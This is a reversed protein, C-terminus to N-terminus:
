ANSGKLLLPPFWLLQEKVISERKSIICYVKVKSHVKTAVVMTDIWEKPTRCHIPHDFSYHCKYGGYYIPLGIRFM